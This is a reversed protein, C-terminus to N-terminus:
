EKNLMIHMTNAKVGNLKNIENASNGDYFLHDYHTMNEPEIRYGPMITIKAGNSYEIEYIDGSTVHKVVVGFPSVTDYKFNTLLYEYHQAQVHMDTVIVSNYGHKVAGLAASLATAVTKGQRRGLVHISSMTRNHEIVDKVATHISDNFLKEAFGIYDNM